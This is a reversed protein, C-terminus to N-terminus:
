YIYRRVTKHDFSCYLVFFNNYKIYTAHMEKCLDIWFFAFSFKFFTSDVDLQKQFSIVNLLCYTSAVASLLLCKLVSLTLLYFSLSSSPSLTLLCVKLLSPNSAKSSGSLTLLSRFVYFYALINLCLCHTSTSSLSSFLSSLSLSSLSSSLSVSIFFFLFNEV